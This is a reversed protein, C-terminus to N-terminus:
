TMEFAKGLGWAPIILAAIVGAQWYYGCSLVMCADLLPIALIGAKVLKRLPLVQNELRAIGTLIAIYLFIIGPFLIFWGTPKGGAALGLEWNLARCIGMSIIALIFWKKLLTDYFIAALVISCAIVGVLPAIMFGALIGISFLIIVIVLATGPTLIGTPLVRNPRKQRDSPLDCYDNFAVGGGYLTASVISAMVVQSWSLTSGGAVVMGAWVNSLSTFINPLRVLRIVGTLKSYTFYLM